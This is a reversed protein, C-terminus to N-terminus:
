SVLYLIKSEIICTVQPLLGLFSHFSVFNHTMFLKEVELMDVNLSTLTFM